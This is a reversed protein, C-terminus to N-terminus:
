PFEPPIQRRNIELVRKFSPPFTKNGGYNEFPYCLLFVSDELDDKQHQQHQVAAVDMNKMQMIVRDYSIIYNPAYHGAITYQAGLDM